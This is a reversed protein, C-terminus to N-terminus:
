EGTRRRTPLWLRRKPPEPAEVPEPREELVKAIRALSHAIGNLHWNTARQEAVLALLAYGAGAESAGGPVPFGHEPHNGKLGSEARRILESTDM